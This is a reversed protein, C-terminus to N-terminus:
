APIDNGDWRMQARVVNHTCHGNYEDVGHDLGNFKRALNVASGEISINTESLTHTQM